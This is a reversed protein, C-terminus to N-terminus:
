RGLWFALLGLVLGVVILLWSVRFVKRSSVEIAAVKAHFAEGRELTSVNESRQGLGYQLRWQEPCYAFSAIESASVVSSRTSRHNIPM